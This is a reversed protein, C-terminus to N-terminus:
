YRSRLEAQSPTTCVQKLGVKLLQSASIDLWSFLEKTLVLILNNSIITAISSVQYVLRKNNLFWM